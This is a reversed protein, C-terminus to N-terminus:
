PPDKIPEISIPGPKITAKTYMKITKNTYLVYKVLGVFVKQSPKNCVITLKSKKAAAAM